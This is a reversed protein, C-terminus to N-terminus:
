SAAIGDFGHAEAPVLSEHAKVENRRLASRKNRGVEPVRRAM